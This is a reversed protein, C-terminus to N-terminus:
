DTMEALKRKMKGILASYGERDIIRKFQSRYNRLLSVDDTIVDYVMWRGEKLSLKYDVTTEAKRGKRQAEVVSRVVAEGDQLDEDKYAIEYDVNSKLQKVYNKEILDRFVFVFETREKPSMKLWQEALSRKALEEYDLFGNVIKKVRTKQETTAGSAKQQKLINRVEDNSRKLVSMPSSRSTASAKPALLLAVGLIIKSFISLM